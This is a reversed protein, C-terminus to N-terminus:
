PKVVTVPAVSAAVPPTRKLWANSFTYVAASVTSVLFAYEPPLFGAVSGAVSAVSNLALFIFATSTYGPKDM